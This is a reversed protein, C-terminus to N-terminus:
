NTITWDSSSSTGTSVYIKKNTADVFQIGVAQPTTAPAASGTLTRTLTYRISGVTVFFNAGDFEVAGAEPTTLNVGSTLKFPANGATATGAKIHFAATPVIGVGVGSPRIRFRETPSSGTYFAFDNLSYFYNYAIGAGGWSAVNSTNINFFQAYTGDFLRSYFAGTNNSVGVYGNVQGGSLPFYTSAAVPTSLYNNVIISLLGNHKTILSDSSNGNPTTISIPFPPLVIQAQTYASAILFILFFIKKM